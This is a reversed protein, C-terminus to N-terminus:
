LEQVGWVLGYLNFVGAGIDRNGGIVLKNNVGTSRYGRGLSFRFPGATYRAAAANAFPFTGCIIDGIATTTPTYLGLPLIPKATTGDSDFLTLVGFKADTGTCTVVCSCIVYGGRLVFRTQVPAWIVAMSAIASITGTLPATFPAYTNSTFDPIAVDRPQPLNATSPATAPPASTPAFNV